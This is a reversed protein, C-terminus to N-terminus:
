EQTKKEELLKKKDGIKAKIAGIVAPLLSILIIAIIVVVLIIGGIVKSKM